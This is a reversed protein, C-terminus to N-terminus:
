QKEKINASLAVRCSAHVARKNGPVQNSNRSNRNDCDGAERKPQIKKNSKMKMM